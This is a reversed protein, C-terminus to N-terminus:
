LIRTGPMGLTFDVVRRELRDFVALDLLDDFFLFFDTELKGGVAFEAACPPVEIEKASQFTDGRDRGVRTDLKVADLGFMLCDADVSLDFELAMRMDLMELKEFAFAPHRRL